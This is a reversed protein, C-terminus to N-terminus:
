DARASAARSEIEDAEELERLTDLRDPEIFETEIDGGEPACLFRLMDYCLPHQSDLKSKTVGIKRLLELLREPLWRVQLGVFADPDALACEGLM